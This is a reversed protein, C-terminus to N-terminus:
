IVKSKRRSERISAIYAISVCVLGVLATIIEPVDIVLNALMATALGLIAWQAGQELYKLNTLTKKAVM